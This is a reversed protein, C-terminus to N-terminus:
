QLCCLFCCLEVNVGTSSKKTYFSNSDSSWIRLSALRDWGCRAIAHDIWFHDAFCAPKSQLIVSAGGPFNYGVLQNPNTRDSAVLTVLIDDLIAPHHHKLRIALYFRFERMLVLVFAPLTILGIDIQQWSKVYIISVNPFILTSIANANLFIMVENVNIFYQRDSYVSSSWIIFDLGITNCRNIRTSSWCHSDGSSAM